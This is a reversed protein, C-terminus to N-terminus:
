VGSTVSSSVFVQNATGATATVTIAAATSNIYVPVCSYSGVGKLASPQVSYTQAGSGDTYTVDIQVNTSATIVRFYVWVVLNAQAAPTFTTVTTAGTTTLQFDSVSTSKTLGSSPTLIQVYAGTNESIEFHQTSQNYRIRGTSSASVATSAGARLALAAANGGSVDAVDITTAPSATGIGLRQLHDIRMAESPTTGNLTSFVIAGTNTAGDTKAYITAIRKDQAGLATNTWALVGLINSTGTLNKTLSFVAYPTDTATATTVAHEIVKNNEAAFGVYEVTASTLGGLLLAKNTSDWFHAADSTISSTGNAYVIQGSVLASFALGGSSIQTYAGGNESIEFHNTSANYRLRGTSAASVAASQGARLALSALNGGSVDAVDLVTGPSTTGIGTKGTPDIIFLGTPTYAAGVTKGTDSFYQFGSVNQVIIGPTAVKAIWNTGDYAAGGSLYISESSNSMIYGGTDTVAGGRVHIGMRTTATQRIDLQYSPSNTGLGLIKNTNDWFFSSDSSVASASTAFVVQGNVLSSFGLSTGGTSIQSYAGGNESLEFHQATANYRIRGASSNSVGASQGSQWEVSGTNGSSGVLLTPVATDGSGGLVQLKASIGAVPAGQPNGFAARGNAIIDFQEVPTSGTWVAFKGGSSAATLTITGTTSNTNFMRIENLSGDLVDIYRVADTASTGFAHQAFGSSTVTHLIAQPNTTGIGVNGTALTIVLKDGLSLKGAGIANASGTAYISVDAVTGGSGALLLTPGSNASTSQIELTSGAGATGKVHLANIPSATGIGLRKNTNDWNLNSDASITGTGTWFAIETAAGTGSVATASTPEVIGGFFMVDFTAGSVNCVSGIVRRNTGPTGRVMTGTDSVFVPEGVVASAGSVAVSFRGFIRIKILAGIAPSTSGDVGTELVGLLEDVNSASTALAAVFSPLTEQGPLGSKIVTSATARVVTGQTLGGAGAVGVLIGPDAMTRDVHQLFIGVDTAWGRAGDAQITEQAAPVRERTKLQRIGVVVINSVESPFGMNVVLKILYSGEKKPTFTPNQINTASLADATGPPQDLISWTFTTEGGSNQNDLSVLTNIPLDTNSGVVSNVKILASAM